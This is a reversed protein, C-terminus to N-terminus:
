LLRSTTGLRNKQGKKNPIKFLKDPYSLKISLSYVVELQPNIYSGKIKNTQKNQHHNNENKKKKKIRSISGLVQHHM